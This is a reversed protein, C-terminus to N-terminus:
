LGSTQGPALRVPRMNRMNLFLYFDLSLAASLHMPMDRTHNPGREFAVLLLLPPCLEQTHGTELHRPVRQVENVLFAGSRRAQCLWGWWFSFAGRAGDADRQM